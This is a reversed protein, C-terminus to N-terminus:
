VKPVAEWIGGTDGISLAFSLKKSSIHDGM